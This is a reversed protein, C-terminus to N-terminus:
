GARAQHDLLTAQLGYEEIRRQTAWRINAILAGITGTRAQWKPLVIAYDIRIETNFPRMVLDKAGCSLAMFPDALCCGVPEGALQCAIIGNRAQIRSKIVKGSANALSTLSQHLRSRPHTTILEYGVLDAFTIAALEALPHQSNMAVVPQVRLFPVVDYEGSILPLSVIAIDFKGEALIAEADIRPYSNIDVSLQRNNGVVEAIAENLFANAIFPASVIRIYDTQDQRLRTAFGSLEDEASLFRMAASYFKHGQDTLSLSRGRRMFVPFGVEEELEALLRSVHPSSRLIREAAKAVSGTEVFACLAELARRNM